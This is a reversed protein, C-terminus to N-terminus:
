ARRIALEGVLCNVILRIRRDAENFNTSDINITTVFAEKKENFFDTEIVFASSSLAIGVDEPVFVKIGCVFAKIHITTEGAPIDAESLDIDIDGIGLRLEEDTLKWAGDRRIDGLIKQDGIVLTEEVKPRLLLWLGIAILIIPILYPWINVHFFNGILWFFGLTLFFLGLAAQGKNIM